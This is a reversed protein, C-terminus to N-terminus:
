LPFIKRIAAPESSHPPEARPEAARRPPPRPPSDSYNAQRPVTRGNQWDTFADLASPYYERLLSRLQHSHQQRNWTADQQTRAL